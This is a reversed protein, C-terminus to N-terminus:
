LNLVKVESRDKIYVLKNQYLVFAEPQLKQINTNLIDEFIIEHEDAVFLYQRLQGAWLTHLSVIRFNNYTLYHVKHGYSEVPLQPLDTPLAVADPVIIQNDFDTDTTPNYARQLTGTRINSLYYKAPQLRSDFFVPGNNSLHDFSYNFNHWLLRGTTAEVGALGRHAPSGSSEYYHLLLVGGYAAEIGTLWREDVTYNKFFTKGDNLSIAAFDVRRDEVHRIEAFLTNSIPDVELRWVQGDFHEAVLLKLLTM